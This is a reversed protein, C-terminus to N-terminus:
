RGPVMLHATSTGANMIWVGDNRGSDPLGLSEATAFPVVISIHSRASAQDAGDLHYYITGFESVARTGNAEAEAFLAQIEERTGGSNNFEFNQEVRARNGESTCTASFGESSTEDWCLIGNSGQRLVVVSGDDDLSIVTADAQSRAPAAAVARAIEADASQAEVAAPLAVVLCALAFARKM